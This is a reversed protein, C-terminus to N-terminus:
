SRKLKMVYVDVSGTTANNFVRVSKFEDSTDFTFVQGIPLGMDSATAAGLGSPGFELNINLPAAATSSAISSIAFLQNTGLAIEAGSAGASITQKTVSEVGGSASSPSFVASFTAM